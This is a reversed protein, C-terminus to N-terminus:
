VTFSEGCGCEGQTRPNRFKLAETFGRKEFDITTGAVLDYSDSDVFIRVDHDDFIHDDDQKTDAFNVVYSYGSCGTGVVALRIGLGKGREHLQEKFKNAAAVTLLIM